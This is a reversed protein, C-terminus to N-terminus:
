IRGNPGVCHTTAPHMVRESRESDINWQNIRREEADTMLVGRSGRQLPHEGHEGPGGKPRTAESREAGFCGWCLELM